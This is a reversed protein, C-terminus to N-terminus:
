SCCTFYQNVVKYAKFQHVANFHLIIQLFHISNTYQFKCNVILWFVSYIYIYLNKKALCSSILYVKRREASRIRCHLISYSWGWCVSFFFGLIIIPNQTFTYKCCLESKLLTRFTQLESCSASCKIITLNLIYCNCKCTVSFKLLRHHLLIDVVLRLLRGTSCDTLHGLGWKVSLHKWFLDVAKWMIWLSHPFFALFFSCQEENLCSSRKFVRNCM